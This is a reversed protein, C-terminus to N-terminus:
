ESMVAMIPPVSLQENRLFNAHVTTKNNANSRVLTSSGVEGTARDTAIISYTAHVYQVYLLGCVLALWTTAM